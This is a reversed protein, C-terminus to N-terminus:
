DTHSIKCSLSIFCNAAYTFSVFKKKDGPSLLKWLIKICWRQGGGRGGGEVEFRDADGVFFGGGKTVYSFSLACWGNLM